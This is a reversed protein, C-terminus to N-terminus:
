QEAVRSLSVCPGNLEGLMMTPKAAAMQALASQTAHRRASPLWGSHSCRAPTTNRPPDGGARSESGRRHRGGSRTTATGRTAGRRATRAPQQCRTRPTAATGEAVEDGDAIGDGDSDASKPDTGLDKEEGNTLGDGDSDCGSLSFALLAIVALGRKM